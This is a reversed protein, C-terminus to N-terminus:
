PKIYKKITNDATLLPWYKTLIGKMQTHQQSFQTIIRVSQDVSPSRKSHILYKKNLKVVKNFAKKLLSKSYGRQHLRSYLYYAAHHFDADLTCNRRLRLFQSYPISDLLSRPHASSAHLITNGAPPKRYLSSHLTGGVDAHILLDLFNIRSQSCEMTIKLNYNNIALLDM